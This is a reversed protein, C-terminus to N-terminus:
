VYFSFQQDDFIPSCLLVAWDSHKETVHSLFDLSTSYAMTCLSCQLSLHLQTINGAVWTFILPWQPGGTDGAMSLWLQSIRHVLHSTMCTVGIVETNLQSIVDWHIIYLTILSSVQHWGWDEICVCTHMCIQMFMIYICVCVSAHVLENVQMCVCIVCWMSMFSFYLNLCYM